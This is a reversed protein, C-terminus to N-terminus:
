LRLLDGNKKGKSDFNILPDKLQHPKFYVLLFELYQQLCVLSTNLWVSNQAEYVSM